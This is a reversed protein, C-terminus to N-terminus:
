NGKLATDILSALRDHKVPGFFRHLIQGDKALLYTSPLGFVRFSKAMTGDRDQSSPYDMNLDHIFARALVPDDTQLDVGLFTVDRGAYELWTRRLDPAEDRCPDCWSAFFNVVV